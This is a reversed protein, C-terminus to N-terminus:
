NGKTKINCTEAEDICIGGCPKQGAACGGGAGIKLNNVVSKVCKIKMAIKEIAKKDREKAAWGELTAVGDKVRVNIHEKQDEYKNMKAYIAEVIEADTKKSCDEKQAYTGLSLTLMLSFAVLAMKVISKNIM